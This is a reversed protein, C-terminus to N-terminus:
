QGSPRFYDRGNGDAPRRRSGSGGTSAVVHRAIHQGSTLRALRADLDADEKIEDASPSLAVIFLTIVTFLSIGTILPALFQSAEVGHALGHSGQVRVSMASMGTYHMGSVAIGMILAAGTTAAFGTVNLAAWLAATAAVVAIVVSLVVKLPDYEVTGRLSMAAMGMYHMIAVGGGTIVGGTVLGVASGKRRGAVSMGVGVVVIALALSTLTKAVDYRIATDQVSFGLMGIFHMVWIGTGGISAAGLVLWRARAWGSVARARTTCLLGLASGVCSMIYAVVPTLIGYAFHDIHGM